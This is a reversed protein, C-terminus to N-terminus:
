NRSFENDFFVMNEFPIGTKQHLRRFHHTKNNYSIEVLNGFCSTPTTGDEVVLHDMCFKAWDPEDTRSAVAAKIERGESRLRNSDLL